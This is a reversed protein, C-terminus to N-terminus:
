LKSLTILSQAELGSHSIGSLKDEALACMSAITLVDAEAEM